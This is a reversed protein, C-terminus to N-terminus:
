YSPKHGNMCLEPLLLVDSEDRHSVASLSSNAQEVELKLNLGRAAGRLKDALAAAQSRGLVLVEGDSNSTSWWQGGGAAVDRRLLQGSAGVELVLRGGPHLRQAAGEVIRGVLALGSPGGRLALEPEQRYEAPLAAMAEDDVYPPNCLVLDYRPASPPLAAWLDGCFLSIVSTLKKRQLNVRAVELAAPSIDAAHIILESAGMEDGSNSGNDRRAGALMRYALIALAGSGCCLDLVSRVASLTLPPDEDTPEMSLEERASALNRQHSHQHEKFLFFRSNPALM